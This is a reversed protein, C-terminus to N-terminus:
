WSLQRRDSALELHQLENSILGIFMMVLTKEEAAVKQGDQDKGQM